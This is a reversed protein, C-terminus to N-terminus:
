HSKSTSVLGRFRADPVIEYGQVTVNSLVVNDEHWLPIIPLDTAIIKQVENYIAKRREPDLEARGDEVLRDVAPNKYRWRNYGDPDKETPWRTSHFFTMYFDPETIETSQMTAIQYNGKKVDTFFTSFEFSRIEVDIGAERLQSAIIRAVTVRFADASTKYVLHLRMGDAGRKFGAEDLLQNARAVDHGYHPVDPNYAWHNPPLLGTALVARGGFEARIIAERDISLAIAERVRHDKLAPDLNNILMYTLIVSAGSQKQVRPRQIVEDVLDPRVGNQVLDASGGVLMLIRAAPDRVVRVDVHAIKTPTRYYENRDLYASNTSVSRLSFPGAGILKKGRCAGPPTDHFSVVGFEIDTMFTALKKKFKFRVRKDDIAEISTFRELLNGQYLSKCNDDMVSQFTRAVDEARVPKGDSFKADARVIVDVTMDDIREVKEALELQPAADPTDVTVLGPAVLRSLKSDYNNKAFRPDATTIPGDFLLVVTDDPTRRRNASCGALAAAIVLM